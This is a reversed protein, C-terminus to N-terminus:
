GELDIHSVALGDAGPGAAAHSELKKDILNIVGVKGMAACVVFARAGDPSVALSTPASKGGDKACSIDAVQEYTAADFVRLTDVMPHTVLVHAGDPTFRVRFPFGHSQITHAVELTESDIVSITHSRNNACWIRKGDPSVAIGEAGVGTKVKKIVEGTDLDIVAVMGGPVCSVYARKFDPAVALMHGGPEGHAHVRVVEGRSTDVKIISRNVESTALVHRNDPMFVLDNPRPHEPGLDIVRAVKQARIDILFLRQDPTKHQEGSGYAAGIAFAGDPSVAIEHAGLGADFRALEKGCDGNMLVLANDSRTSVIVTDALADSAAVAIVAVTGLAYQLARHHSNTHKM